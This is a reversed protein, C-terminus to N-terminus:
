IAEELSIVAAREFRTDGEPYAVLSLQDKTIEIPPINSHELLDRMQNHCANVMEDHLSWPVNGLVFFITIMHM